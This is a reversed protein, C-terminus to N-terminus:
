YRMGLSTYLVNQGQYIRWDIRNNPLKKMGSSGQCGLYRHQERWRRCAWGPPISTQSMLGGEGEGEGVAGADFV